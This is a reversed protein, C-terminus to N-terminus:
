DDMGLFRGKPGVSFNFPKGDKRAEIEYPLVGRRPEFSKDVRELKGGGVKEKITAQVEPPTESLFVQVSQLKGNEAVSFDRLKGDRRVEVYYSTEDREFIHFIGELKAPGLSSEITKHVPAPTETLFMQMAQLKGELTVSFSREAGDKGKMDIDYTIEDEDFSKAIYEITGTGVQARVTRQVPVPTEDMAVEVSLLTGHEAVTFDREQGDRAKYSVTFSVGEDEDREIETIKAGALQADMTKRVAPPVQALSVTKSPEAASIVSVVAFLFCVIIAPAPKM